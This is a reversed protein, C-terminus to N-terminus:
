CTHTGCAALYLVHRAVWAYVFVPQGTGAMRYHIKVGEKVNARHHGFEKFAVTTSQTM